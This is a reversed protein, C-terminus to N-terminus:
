NTNSDQDLTDSATDSSLSDVAPGVPLLHVNRSLYQELQKKDMKNISDDLYKPEAQKQPMKRAIELALKAAQVRASPSSDENILINQITDLAIHALVSARERFEEQNRFWEKFGSQSWWRGVRSDGVLRLVEAMTIDQADCTPAENFRVWFAEKTKRQEGSPVYTLDSVLVEVFGDMKQSLGSDSATRPKTM